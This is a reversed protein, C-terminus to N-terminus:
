EGLSTKRAMVNRKRGKERERAERAAQFYTYAGLVFEPASPQSRLKYIFAYLTKNSAGLPHKWEFIIM